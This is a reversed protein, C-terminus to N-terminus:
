KILKYGVRGKRIYEYVASSGPEPIKGKIWTGDDDKHYIIYDKINRLDNFQRLTIIEEM